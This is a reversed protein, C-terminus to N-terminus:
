AAATKKRKAQFHNWFGEDVLEVDHTRGVISRLENKATDFHWEGSILDIDKLRDIADLERFINVESQECDIKLWDIHGLKYKRLMKTVSIANSLQRTRYAREFESSPYVDRGDETKYFGLIALNRPTCRGSRSNKVLVDYHQKLPEFSYIRADPFYKAALATFSGIHAGIDVIVRPAFGSAALERVHYCDDVQVEHCIAYDIQRERADAHVQMQCEATHFSETKPAFRERISAIRM